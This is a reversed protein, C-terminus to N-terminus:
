TVLASAQYIPITDKHFFVWLSAGVRKYWTLLVCLLVDAPRVGCLAPVLVQSRSCGSRQNEIELSPLFSHKNNMLYTPSLIKDYCGLHVLDARYWSM